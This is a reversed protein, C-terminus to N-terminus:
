FVDAELLTTPTKDMLHDISWQLVHWSLYIPQEDSTVIVNAVLHWILEAFRIKARQDSEWIVSCSQLNSISHIKALHLLISRVRCCPVCWNDSITSLNPHRFRLTFNICCNDASIDVNPEIVGGSWQPWQICVHLRLNAINLNFLLISM